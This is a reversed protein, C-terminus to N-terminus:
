QSGGRTRKPSPRDECWRSPDQKILARGLEDPVQITGGSRVEGCKDLTVTGTGKYTLKM